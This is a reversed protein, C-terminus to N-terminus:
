RAHQDTPFEELVTLLQAQLEIVTRARQLDTELSEVRSRLEVNKRAVPHVGPRGPKASLATRMGEDRQKRWQSLLSTYLGERQLMKGKGHRDLTDYEALIELKYDASYRQRTGRAPKRITM